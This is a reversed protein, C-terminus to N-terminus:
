RSQRTWRFAAALVPSLIAGALAGKADGPSALGGIVAGLLCSLLLTKFLGADFAVVGQALLRQTASGLEGLQQELQRITQGGHQAAAQVQHEIASVSQGIRVVKETLERSQKKTEESTERLGDRVARLQTGLPSLASEFSTTAAALEKVAVGQESLRQELGGLIGVISGVREVMAAELESLRLRDHSARVGHCSRAVNAMALVATEMTQFYSRQRLRLIAALLSLYMAFGLGLVSTGFALGLSQVLDRTLRGLEVESAKIKAAIVAPDIISAASEFRTPATFVGFARIALLLGLFTGAIGVWLMLRQIRELQALREQCEERSLQMIEMNSEVHGAEADLCIKEVLRLMTPKRQAVNQPALGRLDSLRLSEQQNKQAERLTSEAKTDVWKAIAQSIQLEALCGIAIRLALLGLLAFLVTMVISLNALWAISEDGSQRNAFVALFCLVAAGLGVAATFFPDRHFSGLQARFSGPDAQALSPDSRTTM